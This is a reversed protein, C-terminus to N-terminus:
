PRVRESIAGRRGSPRLLVPNFPLRRLKFGLSLLHERRLEWETDADPGSCEYADCGSECM